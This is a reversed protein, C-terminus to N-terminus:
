SLRIKLERIFSSGPSQKTGRSESCETPIVPVNLGLIKSLISKISCFTNGTIFPHYVSARHKLAQHIQAPTNKGSRISHISSDSM